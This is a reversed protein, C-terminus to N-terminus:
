HTHGGLAAGGGRAMLSKTYIQQKGDTVVKDGPLLGKKVEVHRDDRAGLVVDARRFSGKDEVFVFSEGETTIVAELPISLVEGGSGVVISMESFLNPKLKGSSNAVEVALRLTRKQPDIVPSFRSIKGSFVEEPYSALRIRVNQGPKLERVSEEFADGEVFVVSPDLVKFIVKSPEVTEGLVVNREAIVGGIPAVVAFTAIAKETRVRKVGSESLGLIMLQQELGQIENQVAQYQNQAAILEKRAAIKSDVLAQIRDLEAKALTLKNEAQLLEVQTKQMEASQVDALRQGRKVVDGVQSFLGVVKGSVRSSVQAERDPHPRVVGAVRIVQEIGRLDATATKLGINQREEASLKLGQAEQEKGMKTEGKKEEHTHPAAGPANAHPTTDAAPKKATPTASNHHNSEDGKSDIHGTMRGLWFSLGLLIIGAVVLISQKSTM